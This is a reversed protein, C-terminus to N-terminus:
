CCNKKNKKQNDNNVVVSDDNQSKKFNNYIVYDKYLIQAAKVFIEKANFGTKASTENFYDFEYDNKIKEASEKNVKRDDELDIKNGILFIKIDPSSNQKLDKIWLELDNFSNLSFLWIFNIKSMLLM